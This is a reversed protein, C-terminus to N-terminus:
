ILLETVIALLPLLAIAFLNSYMVSNYNLISLKNERRIILLLAFYLLMSFAVVLINSNLMFIKAYDSSINKVYSDNSEDYYINDTPLSSCFNLTIDDVVKTYSSKVLIRYEDGNKLEVELTNLADVTKSVVGYDIEYSGDEALSVTAAVDTKSVEYTKDDVTVIIGTDSEEVNDFLDCYAQYLIDGDVTIIRYWNPATIYIYYIPEGFAVSVEYSDEGTTNISYTGDENEEFVDVERVNGADMDSQVLKDNYNIIAVSGSLDYMYFGIYSILFIIPLFGIIMQIYKHRELWELLVSHIM